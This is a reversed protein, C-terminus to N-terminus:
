PHRCRAVAAVEGIVAFCTVAEEPQISGSARCGVLEVRLVLPDIQDIVRGLGARDYGAARGITRGTDPVAALGADIEDAVVARGALCGRRFEDVVPCGAVLAVRIDGGVATHQM